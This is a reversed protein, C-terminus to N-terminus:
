IKQKTKKKKRACWKRGNHEIVRTASLWFESITNDAKQMGVAYCIILYHPVHRAHLNPSNFTEAENKRQM